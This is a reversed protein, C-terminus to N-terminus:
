SGVRAELHADVAFISDALGYAQCAIREIAERDEDTM